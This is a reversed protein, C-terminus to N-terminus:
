GAALAADLWVAAQEALGDVAGALAPLAFEVVLMAAAALAVLGLVWLFVALASAPKGAPQKLRANRELRAPAVYTRRGGAGPRQEAM